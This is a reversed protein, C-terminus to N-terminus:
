EKTKNRYTKKHKLRKNNIMILRVIVNYGLQGQMFFIYVFAAM